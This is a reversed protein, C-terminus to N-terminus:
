KTDVPEYVGFGSIVPEASGPEPILELNMTGDFFVIAEHSVTRNGGGAAAVIDFKSLVDDGNIRVSFVRKGAPLGDPESFLLKIHAERREGTPRAKWRISRVGRLGSAGIWNSRSSSMLSSHQSFLTVDAPSIEVDFKPSPGGVIPYEFWLLGDSAGERRDGPAGFNLGLHKASGDTHGFTWSEADPDHILALSTQLQYACSCTRTYDPANLVGDAVILNATCSSRFGGINGTGSDNTLDCFGAAGSRFTLLHESGIATNCGYMRSYTWGTREGTLLSLEFGGGGNTIIRDHRLLCPGGYGLARDKWVVDGTSGRYAILGEKVEDKARDRYASGGQLLVDHERSYNLFTGFVDDTTSWVEDGSRADLALLTAKGEPEVGRRKLAALKASSLMDVCFLKDDAACIANHRYNFRAPRSWLQQGTRRDFAVLLRSGSSFKTPELLLALSLRPKEPEPPPTTSRPVVLLHPDLSFDSSSPSTNHGEIALVNRGTKLLKSADRLRMVEPGSAEHSGITRAQPGAGSKVNVRHIERGNLYAIFADDYNIVLSLDGGATSDDLNFERRIYVRQYKGAMDKLVTRDDGDGYGFGARGTKWKAADFDIATWSTEPDDGALYQWEAHAPILATSNKPLEPKPRDGSGAVEVPSATAFLVEGEVLLASWTTAAGSELEYDRTTEGTEADLELLQGDHVVYVRDPLSVYNSGIEGAGPHHSTNNYYEGLAPLEREWWLRGNYVDVCRLMDAGEIFLRGGAVQPSPGHGHRPLVRDNSPGGFWLMGFPPKVRADASVVSNTADGYQHTWQGSDPLPGDRRLVTLSQHRSASVGKLGPDATLQVIAAHQDPDTVLLCTGGYPRLIRALEQIQDRSDNVVDPESIVLSALHPPLKAAQASDTLVVVRRGYHADSAHNALLDRFSAAAAEDPVLVVVSLDTEYLLHGLIRLSPSGPGSVYVAYGQTVSNLEALHDILARSRPSDDSPSLDRLPKGNANLVFQQSESEVAISGGAFCLVDGQLTTVVLCGDSTMMSAIDGDIEASWVAKRSAAQDSLDYAAVTGGDAAFVQQGAQLFIRTPGDVSFRAIREQKATLQTRKNGRRDTEVKEEVDNGLQTVVISSGENGILGSPSVVRAAIRGASAGDAARYLTGAVVYWNDSTLVEFGGGGKGGFEFHRLEGTKLDFGGPLTRGGPVLLTDGAIALYGQPSISGFSDAGHPHTIYRSGTTSNTWLVKGSQADVARVFVGMSPWIGASFYAVGDRVVVGGRAPWMSILRDNGIIRRQSPGGNVAWLKSGDALSICHLQGDDSTVYVRGNAIAPAFRVPGATFYTWLLRGSALDIALVRGDVPSGIILRGDASVPEYCRDFQLKTQSAPWAPTTPGLRWTWRLALDDPLGDPTSGSRQADHRWMPWDAASLPACVSSAILVLIFRM